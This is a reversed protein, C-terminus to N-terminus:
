QKQKIWEDIGDRIGWRYVILAQEIASQREEASKYTFAPLRTELNERMKAVLDTMIAQAHPDNMAPHLGGASILM